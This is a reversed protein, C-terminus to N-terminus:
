GAGAAPGEWPPLAREGRQYRELNAKLRTELNEREGEAAVSVLTQQLRVAEQFEGATALAMALTEAHEPAKEAEFLKRALEVARDGNRVQDDPATALVRALAQLLPPDDPTLALGDELLTVAEAFREMKVLAGLQALRMTVNGPEEALIIDLEAKADEYRRSEFLVQALNVRAAKHNPEVELVRSYLEAAEANRNSSQFLFAAGFAARPERPNIKLALQYQELAAAPDEVKLLAAALSIRLDSYLPDAAVARRYAEVAEQWKEEEYAKQAQQRFIQQGVSLGQVAAMLPEDLTVEGDGAAEAHAKAKAEDGLDRYAQAALAHVSTAKPQLELVKEFHEAAKAANGSSAAIQGLGSHAAASADDLAVAAEFLRRADVKEGKFSLLEALRVKVPVNEANMLSAERCTEIAAEADQSTGRLRCLYYAWKFEDPDLRRANVYCIEAEGGLGYAQYLNGLEGFAAARQADAADSGEEIRFQWLQRERIQRQVAPSFRGLDPQPLPLLEPPAPADAAVAQEGPGCAALLFFVSSLLLSATRRYTKREIM